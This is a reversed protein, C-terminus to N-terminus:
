DPSFIRNFRRRSTLLHLNRIVKLIAVISVNVNNNKICPSIKKVINQGKDRTQGGPGRGM